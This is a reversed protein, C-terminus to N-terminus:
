GEEPSKRKVAQNIKVLDPHKRLYDIVRETMFGPSDGFKWFLIKLLEYDEPTDLTLGLEPWHYETYAYHHIIKFTKPHRAINWGCHQEPRFKDICKELTKTWYAQTDLGDPWDRWVCNSVYDAGRDKLANVMWGIHQPDVMPCDGTLDVIIDAGHHKAAALVRGIVDNENGVYLYSNAPFENAISINEKSSTTAIVVEDILDCLQCREIMWGLANKGHSLPLLVKGPLRSSNMRAQIIAVTKM